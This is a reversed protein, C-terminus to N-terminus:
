GSDLEIIIKAEYCMFDVIFKGIPVQRQFRLNALHRRRIKQWLMWEARTQNKRLHRANGLVQVGWGQRGGCPPFSNVLSTGSKLKVTDSV